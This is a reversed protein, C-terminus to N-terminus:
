FYQGFASRQYHNREQLMEYTVKCDEESVTSKWYCWSKKRLTLKEYMKTLCAIYERGVGARFNSM